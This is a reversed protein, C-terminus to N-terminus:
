SCCYPFLFLSLSFSFELLLLYIQEEDRVHSLIYFFLPYLYNTKFMLAGRGDGMGIDYYFM